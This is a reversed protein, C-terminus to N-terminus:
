CLYNLSCYVSLPLMAITKHIQVLTRVKYANELNIAVGNQAAFGIIGKGFPIKLAENDEHIADEVSTHEMVDFLRSVLVPNEETGEVLFLSSRDGNILVLVNALIKHSLHNVDFNPSVVDTLLEMFLEQRNLQRLEANSKRKRNSIPLPPSTLRHNLLKTEELQGVLPQFMPSSTNHQMSCLRKSTSPRTQLWKEVYNAASDQHSDLWKFVVDESLQVAM